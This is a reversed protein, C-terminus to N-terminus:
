PRAEKMQCHGAHCRRERIHADYENRFHRLTSLVPNPSAIGLGCLSASAASAEGTRRRDDPLADSAKRGRLWATSYGSADRRHRRPLSHMAAGPSTLAASSWSSARGDVMCQDVYGDRDPRGLGTMSGISPSTTTWPCTWAHRRSAAALRDGTQAAKFEFGPAVGGGIDYLITRLTSRRQLAQACRAGPWHSYRPAPARPRAPEPSGHVAKKSSPPSTPSLRLTTSSRRRM